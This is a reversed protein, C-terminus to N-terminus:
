SFLSTSRLKMRHWKLVFPNLSEQAHMSLRKLQTGIKTVGHVMAQWVERDMFNELCSYQPPNGNGAGPSIGSGPISGRRKHRGANDPLNKVM